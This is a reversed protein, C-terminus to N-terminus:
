IFDQFNSSFNLPRESVTHRDTQSHSKQTAATFPSASISGEEPSQVSGSFLGELHKGIYVEHITNDFM